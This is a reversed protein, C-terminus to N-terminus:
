RSLPTGGGDRHAPASNRGGEPLERGWFLGEYIVNLIGGILRTMVLSPVGSLDLITIPKDHGIWGQLLEALDKTTSGDLKPEWDGPHLM